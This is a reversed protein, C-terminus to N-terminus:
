YLANRFCFLPKFFLCFNHFVIKGEGGVAQAMEAAAEEPKTEEEEEEIEPEPELM